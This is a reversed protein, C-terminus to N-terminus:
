IRESSWLTFWCNVIVFCLLFVNHSALNVSRFYASVIFLAINSVGSEESYVKTEDSLAHDNDFM